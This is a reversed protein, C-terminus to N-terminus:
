LVLKIKVTPLRLRIVVKSRDINIYINGSLIKLIWLIMAELVVM